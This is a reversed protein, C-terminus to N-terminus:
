SPLRGSGPYPSQSEFRHVFPHHRHCHAPNRHEGGAPERGAQRGGDAPQDLAVGLHRGVHLDDRVQVPVVAQEAATRDVTVGSTRAPAWRSCLNPPLGIPLLRTLSVLMASRTLRPSISPPWSASAPRPRAARGVTDVDQVGDATVVGVGGGRIQRRVQLARSRGSRPRGASSWRCRRRERDPLAQARPGRGLLARQEGAVDDGLVGRVGPHQDDVLHHAAVASPQGRGRGPRVALPQGVCSHFGPIPRSRSAPVHVRHVHGLCLDVHVGLRVPQARHHVLLSQTLM